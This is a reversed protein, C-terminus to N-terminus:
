QQSLGSLSTSGCVVPISGNLTPVTDPIVYRASSNSGCGHRNNSGDYDAYRLTPGLPTTFDWADMTSNSASDWVTGTNAATLSIADLLGRGRSLISSPREGSDDVGVIEADQRAGFGYSAVITGRSRGALAGVKDNNGHGGNANGTAYSATITGNNAGILGGVTDNHGNEGSANAFTYSATVTGSNRGVLGGVSDNRGSGGNARGTAYSAIITGNRGSASNNIGVLTGVDDSAGSGGNVDGNSVYSAIIVGRNNGVLGGVRDSDAGSGYVKGESAYTAIIAGRNNGVLAGISVSYDDDNDGYLNSDVMGLSRIVANSNTQGFLGVTGAGRSYLNSITFANGEFIANFGNDADGIPNWGSNAPTGSEPRWNQNVESRGYSSADAFDLSRTLEYGTCVSAGDTGCMTGSDDASTKYSNGALNHRINDLQELSSIEILGDGDTDVPDVTITLTQGTLLTTGCIITTPRNTTPVSNPITAVNGTTTGCGYDANVGDYDAYRLTPIQGDTGFDWANMTNNSTSNWARGTNAATLFRSANDIGSGIGPVGDPRNGPSNHIGGSGNTLTGFGYSATITGSSNGNGILAGVLNAGDGGGDVDGNAYSATITDFVSIGVLGGVNDNLGDGGTVNGIAYSATITGSLDSIGASVGVSNNIGVLGGVSDNDGAGGDATGTAYSATITGSNQGVLGGVRNDDGETGDVTGGAYSATITGSNYGVLGGVHESTRMVVIDTLDIGSLDIDTFEIDAFDVNTGTLHANAPDLGTFDIDIIDNVTDDADGGSVNVRAYSAIITGGNNGVLGGAYEFRTVTEIMRSIDRIEPRSSGSANNQLQLVRGNVIASKGGQDKVSTSDADAITDERLVNGTVTGSVVGVSRIVAASDTYGFLGAAEGYRVHLNSITHGNGEFVTNFGASDDGIPQWGADASSTPYWTDNVVGREYSHASAFDLNRILEYGKCNTNFDVGCRVSIATDDAGVTYSTGNLNYRINHLRDLSHIDILGDGDIDIPNARRASAVAFTQGPLLTRGCTVGVTGGTSDPVRAPITAIAGTTTGCGYDANVGDYDAYRLVPIQNNNGFDWAGVSNSDTDDWAAGVDAATLFRAGNAGAGSGMAIGAVGGLRNDATVVTVIRGNHLAGFGYSANITGANGGALYGVFNNNGGSGDVTGIAYSATITGANIGVLGGVHDRSDNGGTTNGTAYSTAITGNNYGVLGGVRDGVGNGGDATAYTYSATITGFNYGVLGGVSDLAGSDGYASGSSYSAAINGNNWGVLTGVSDLAGEGGVTAVAYSATITGNNRGVLAGVYDSDDTGGYLAGDVVGLGRITATAGTISFLGVANGDSLTSNRSYLNRITFGNGEFIANFPADDGDGCVGTRGDADGNCSGIPAWGSNTANDPNANNPRWAANIANGAYSAADAFDLTRTLEYGSCTSQGGTGCMTGSDTASTKLSSGDLNYRINHLREISNIDILGDGDADIPAATQASALSAVGFLLVVGWLMYGSGSNTSNKRMRCNKIPKFINIM